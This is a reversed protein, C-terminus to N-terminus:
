FDPIELFKAMKEFMRDELFRSNQSIEVIEWILVKLFKKLRLTQPRMKVSKTDIYGSLWRSRITKSRGVM